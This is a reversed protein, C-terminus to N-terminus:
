ISSGCIISMITALIGSVILSVKSWSVKCIWSMTVVVEFIRRVASAPLWSSTWFTTSSSSPVFIQWSTKFFETRCALESTLSSRRYWAVHTLLMSFLSSRKLLDASSASCACCCSLATSDCSPAKAVDCLSFFLFASMPTACPFSLDRSCVARLEQFPMVTLCLASFDIRSLNSASIALESRSSKSHLCLCSTPTLPTSARFAASASPPMRSSRKLKQFFSTSCCLFSPSVAPSSLFSSSFSLDALSPCAAFVLFTSARICPSFSSDKIRSTKRAKM